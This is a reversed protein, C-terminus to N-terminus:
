GPSVFSEPLLEGITFSVYSDDKKLIIESNELDFFELIVQRCAGCPPCYGPEENDRGGVVAIARFHRFGKSVAHALANQEACISLFAANEVNCGTVIDGNDCLLAAGVAFHSYPCYANKAAETAANILRDALETPMKESPKQTM